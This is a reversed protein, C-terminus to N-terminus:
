LNTLNKFPIQLRGQLSPPVFNLPGKLHFVFHKM